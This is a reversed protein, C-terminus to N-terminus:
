PQGQTQEWDLQISAFVTRGPLPQQLSDIRTRDDTLNQATLGLTMWRLPQAHVGADVSIWGPAKLNGFNDLNAVSRGHVDSRLRVRPGIKLTAGLGGEHAPQHAVAEGGEDRTASTWTYRGDVLLWRTPELAFWTEVGRATAGEINSAEIVSSSVPLFLIVSDMHNEFYASGVRFAATGLEIGGDFVWARESALAPNGRVTEVNLYLEDFDPARFTRALNTRQLSHPTRSSKMRHAAVFRAM